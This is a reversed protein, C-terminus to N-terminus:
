LLIYYFPIIEILKIYLFMAVYINSLVQGIRSLEM